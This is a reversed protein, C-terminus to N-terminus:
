RWSFSASSSSARGDDTVSFLVRVEVLFHLPHRPRGDDTVLFLVRVEVLFISFIILGVM